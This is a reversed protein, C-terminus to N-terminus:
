RSISATSRDENSASLFSVSVQEFANTLHPFGAAVLWEAELEGDAFPFSFRDVFQILSSEFQLFILAFHSRLQM